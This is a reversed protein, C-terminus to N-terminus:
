RLFVQLVPPSNWLRLHNDPPIAWKVPARPAAPAFFSPVAVPPRVRVDDDVRGGATRRSSGPVAEREAIDTCAGLPERHEAQGSNSAVAVTDATAHAVPAGGVVALVLLVLVTISRPM